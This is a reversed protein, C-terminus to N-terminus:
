YAVYMSVIYHLLFLQIYRYKQYDSTLVGFVLPTLLLSNFLVFTCLHLFVCSKSNMDM